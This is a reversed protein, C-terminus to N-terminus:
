SCAPALISTRTALRLWEDELAPYSARAAAPRAVVVLWIGGRIAHQHKRVIERLRRRVRNRVVASGIRKSTVFGARFPQNDSTELVGLVILAGRQARGETRVRAFEASRVLRRDRGFRLNEASNM